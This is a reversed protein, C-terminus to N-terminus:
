PTPGASLLQRGQREITQKITGTLAALIWPLEVDVRVVREEVHAQGTVPMGMAIFTFNLTDGDWREEIHGLTNSFQQRYQAIGHQARMKAEARDLQHPISISLNPM